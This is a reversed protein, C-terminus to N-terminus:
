IDSTTCLILTMVGNVPATIISNHGKTFTLICIMDVTFDKSINEHLKTYIYTNNSLTCLVLVMVGAVSKIYKHGKIFKLTPIMVVPYCQFGKLHKRLNQYM